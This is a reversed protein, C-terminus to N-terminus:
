PNALGLQQAYLAEIDRTLQRAAKSQPGILYPAIPIDPLVEIHFHPTRVPVEYWKKGKVLNPPECRILVPTIDRRSSIAINAAGRLLKVPQGPTSRTGEPFIILSDGQALSAECRAIMDEDENTIYGAIKSPIFTFKNQRVGQKIVCNAQRILSILFVVDLLSPHNAIVLQGSRNLRQENRIDRTFLGSKDLFFLYCEFTHSVLRRVVRYKWQLPMPLPFLFLVLSLGLSCGGLGFAVFSFGTAFVRWGRHLRSRFGTPIM